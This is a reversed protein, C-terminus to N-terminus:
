WIHTHMIIQIDLRVYGMILNYQLSLTCRALQLKLMCTSCTYSIWLSPRCNNPLMIISGSLINIVFTQDIEVKISMVEFPEPAPNCLSIAGHTDYSAESCSPCSSGYELTCLMRRATEITQHPNPAPLVCADPPSVIM